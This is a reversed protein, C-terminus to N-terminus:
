ARHHDGCCIGLLTKPLSRSSRLHREPLHSSRSTVQEFASSHLWGSHEGPAMSRRFIATRTLSTDSPVDQSAKATDCALQVWWENEWKKKYPAVLDLVAQNNNVDAREVKMHPVETWQCSTLASSDHITLSQGQPLSRHQVQYSPVCLM